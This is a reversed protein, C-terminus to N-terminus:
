MVPAHKGILMKPTSSTPRADETPLWEMQVRHKSLNTDRLSGHVIIRSQEVRYGKVRRRKCKQPSQAMGTPMNVFANPVQHLRITPCMSPIQDQKHRLVAANSRNVLWPQGGGAGITKALIMSSKATGQRLLLQKNLSCPEGDARCYKRRKRISVDCVLDISRCSLM